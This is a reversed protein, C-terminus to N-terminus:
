RIKSLSASFALATCQKLTVSFRRKRADYRMLIGREDENEPTPGIVNRLEDVLAEISGYRAAYVRTNGNICPFRDTGTVWPTDYRMEVMEMIEGMFPIDMSAWSPRASGAYATPKNPPWAPMLSGDDYRPVVYTLVGSPAPRKPLSGGTMAMAHAGEEEEETAVDDLDLDSSIRYQVSGEEPGSVTAWSAPYSISSLAVSWEERLDYSTALKTTFNALTNDPYFNMSSNSPLTLTFRDKNVISM